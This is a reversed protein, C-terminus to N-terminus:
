GKILWGMIGLVTLLMAGAGVLLSRAPKPYAQTVYTGLYEKYVGLPTRAGTTANLLSYRQPETPSSIDSVLFNEEIAALRCPQGCDSLDYRTDTPVDWLYQVATGDPTQYYVWLFQGGEAVQVSIPEAPDIVMLWVRAIGGDADFTVLVQKVETEGTDASRESSTLIAWLQQDYWLLNIIRPKHTYRGWYLEPQWFIQDKSGDYRVRRVVSLRSDPYDTLVYYIWEDAYVFRKDVGLDTESTIYVPKGSDIYWLYQETISSEEYSKARYLIYRDRDNLPRLGRINGGVRLNTFEGTVADYSYLSGAYFTINSYWDLDIQDLSSVWILLGLNGNARRYTGELHSRPNLTFLTEVSARPNLVPGRKWVVERYPYGHNDSVMGETWYLHDGVAFVAGGDVMDATELRFIPTEVLETDFLVYVEVTGTRYDTRYLLPPHLRTEMFAVGVFRDDDLHLIDFTEGGATVAVLRSQTGVIQRFYYLRTGAPVLPDAIATRLLGAQVIVLLACMGVVVVVLRRLM